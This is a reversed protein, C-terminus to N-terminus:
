SCSPHVRFMAGGCIIYNSVDNFLVCEKHVCNTTTNLKRTFHSCEFTPKVKLTMRVM